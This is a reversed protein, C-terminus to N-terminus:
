WGGEGGRARVWGVQLLHTENIVDELFGVGPQLEGLGLSDTVEGVAHTPLQQQLQLSACGVLGTGMSSGPEEAIGWSGGYMGSADPLMSCRDLSRRISSARSLSSSSSSSQRYGSFDVSLRPLPTLQSTPLLM